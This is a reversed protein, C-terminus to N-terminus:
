VKNLAWESIHGTPPGFSTGVEGADDSAMHKINQRCTVWAGAMGGGHSTRVGAERGHRQMRRSHAGLGLESARM